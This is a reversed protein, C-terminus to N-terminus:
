NEEISKKVKRPKKTKEVCDINSNGTTILEEEKKTASKIEKVDLFKTNDAKIGNVNSYTIEKM